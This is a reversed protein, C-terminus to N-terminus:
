ANRRSRLSTLGCEGILKTLLMCQVAAGYIGMEGLLPWMLRLELDSLVRQRARENPPPARRMGKVIPSVFDDSRTAHWNFLKSLAALTADATVIGGLLEGKRKIRKKEIRDLLDVVRSRKIDTIKLDRWEPLVYTHLLRQTEKWSRNVLQAL